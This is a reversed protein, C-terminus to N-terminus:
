STGSSCYWVGCAGLLTLIIGLATSRKGKKGESEDWKSVGKILPILGAFLIIVPVIM